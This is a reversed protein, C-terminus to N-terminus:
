STGEEETVPSQAYDASQCYYAEFIAKKEEDMVECGNEFKTIFPSFSLQTELESVYDIALKGWHALIPGAWNPVIGAM